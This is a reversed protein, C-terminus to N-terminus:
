LNKSVPKNRNPRQPCAYQIHGEEKCIHCQLRTGRCNEDRHGRIGCRRCTFPKGYKNLEWTPNIYGQQHLEPQKAHDHSVNQHNNPKRGDGDFSKRDPVRQSKIQNIQYDMTKQASAQNELLTSLLQQLSDMKNHLDTNQQQLEIMRASAEPSEINNVYAPKKYKFMQDLFKATEETNLENKEREHLFTRIRPTLNRNFTKTILHKQITTDDSAKQALRQVRKYFREFKENSEVDRSLNNLSEEANHQIQKQSLTGIIDALLTLLEKANKTERIEHINREIFDDSLASVVIDKEAIAQYTKASAKSSENASEITPDTLLKFRNLNEDIILKATAFDAPKTRTTIIKRKLECFTKAQEIAATPQMMIETMNITKTTTVLHYSM